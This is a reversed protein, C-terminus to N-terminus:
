PQPLSEETETSRSSQNGDRDIASVSYAYRRGPQANPDRFSPAVLDPPSIRVASASSATDRRYIIYGALDPETNPSWSLDIARADPDAIAQLDRPTAPPFVDRADITVTTSPASLVEFAKGALTLKLVRELTYRYTHDLAADRDLARGQDPGTVELTQEPPMPVGAIQSPKPSGPEAVLVRHIRLIENGGASRWQLLVGDPQAAATFDVVQPPAAGAATIASNSPDASQGAHNLLEVTYAMLRPSGSAIPPPLHDVFDAPKVPDFAQNAATDCPGNEIHRCIRAQQVGKLLVKDTTRKPMTWHLHVEDGYRAATLDTVPEPLHLSPPQPAAPLGCGAMMLLPPLSLAAAVARLAVNM